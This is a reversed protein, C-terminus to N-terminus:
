YHPVFTTLECVFTLLTTHVHDTWLTDYHPISTTLECVFTLLTTHVHDTWLTHCHPIFTTLECLIITHYSRPWNVSYSLTTHVHDTWLTHYHPVFTTLECVFTLLTTRVHDTWLCFNITHYSRPWNVSYSPTTHVHDTWLTHHHPVFTTLECVFTLCYSLILSLPDGFTLHQARRDGSATSQAQIYTTFLLFKCDIKKKESVSTRSDWAFFFHQPKSYSSFLRPLGGVQPRVSVVPHPTPTLM